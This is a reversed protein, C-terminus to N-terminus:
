KNQSDNKLFNQYGGDWGEFFLGGKQFIELDVM